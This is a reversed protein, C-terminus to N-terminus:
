GDLVGELLRSGYPELRDAESLVAILESLEAAIRARAYPPSEGFAEALHLALAAHVLDPGSLRLEALFGTVAVTLENESKKQAVSPNKSVTSRDARAPNVFSGGDGQPNSIVV